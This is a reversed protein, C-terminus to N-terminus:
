VEKDQSENWMDGYKGVLYGYYATAFVLKEGKSAFFGPPTDNDASKISKIYGDDNIARKYLQNIKNSYGKMEKKREIERERKLNNDNSIMNTNYSM